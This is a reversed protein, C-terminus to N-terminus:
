SVRPMKVKHSKKRDRPRLTNGDAAPAGPSVLSKFINGITSSRSQAFASKRLAPAPLPEHQDEQGNSKKKNEPVENKSSTQRLKRQERAEPKAKALDIKKTLVSAPINEVLKHAVPGDEALLSNRIQEFDEFSLDEGLRLSSIVRTPPLSKQRALKPPLSTKAAAETKTATATACVSDSNDLSNRRSGARSPARSPNRSHINKLFEVGLHIVQSAQAEKEGDSMAEALQSVSEM